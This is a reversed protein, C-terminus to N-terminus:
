CPERLNLLHIIEELNLIFDPASLKIAALPMTAIEADQPDQVITLGGAAHIQAIGEAGDQNAGTLLIGALTAGYTDAASSMLIDISPRSFHLPEECSLSFCRNAEVSLHYGAPAFYVQGAQIPAKDMAQQTPLSTYQRFIQPLRSEFLEPMHVLVIIPLPYNEPLGPLIRLLAKIAGASGGIVVAELNNIRQRLNM